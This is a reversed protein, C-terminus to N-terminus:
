QGKKKVNLSVLVVSLSLISIISLVIINTDDGTTPTSSVKTTTVKTQVVDGKSEVFSIEGNGVVMDSAYTRISGFIALMLCLLTVLIIRKFYSEVKGKM